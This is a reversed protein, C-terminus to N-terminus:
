NIIKTLILDKIIRIGGSFRQGFDHYIVSTPVEKIILKNKHAKFLIESAHAMGDNEIIINKLAEKEIARFGSQPDSLNINFLVKNVLRALPMIISKKFWPIDSKKDMFRSGFVAQAQRKKIPEVLDLIEKAIFQGDADFHVIIDAGNNIAYQNGTQLAAGQGRNVLHKLVIIDQKKALNYTKDSSCDDVVIIKDVFPKVDKIVTEITKEENFAPIICFVKLNPM